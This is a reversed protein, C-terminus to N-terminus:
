KIIIQTLFPKKNYKTCIIPSFFGTRRTTLLIDEALKELEIFVFDGPRLNFDNLVMTELHIPTKSLNYESRDLSIQEFQIEM